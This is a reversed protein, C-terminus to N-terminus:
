LMLWRTPTLICNVREDHPAAPIESVIQEDFAIGCSKGSAVALLQDYFGKGRGLRRGHLDFAVGPVLLLDLRYIPLVECSDTPERIGFQGIRLETLPDKIQCAAYLNRGPIFRPLAVTKGDSLKASKDPPGLEAVAQDYTYNGVRSNWDIKPATKCGTTLCNTLALFLITLTLPNVALQRRLALKSEQISDDMQNLNAM